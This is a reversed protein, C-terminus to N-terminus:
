KNSAYYVWKNALKFNIFTVLMVVIFLMWAMASAKGLNLYQFANNYLYLGYFLGSDQPGGTGSNLIFAQTFMQLSFIIGTILQYFIAPSIMPVTIAFFQKGSGAGDIDAAEYVAEPVGQIAALYVIMSSGVAWVSM